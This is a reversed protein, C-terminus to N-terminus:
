RHMGFSIGLTISTYDGVKTNKLATSSNAQVPKGFRGEAFLHLFDKKIPIHYETGFGVVGIVQNIKGIFPENIDSNNVFGDQQLYNGFFRLNNFSIGTTIYMDVVQKHTRFFQLPYVNTVVETEFMNITRPTSPSSYYFGALRAKSRIYDNGVIIGLSGGEEVVKLDNLQKIDSSLRFLRVGFTGELGAYSIKKSQAEATCSYITTVLLVLGFIVNDSLRTLIRTKLTM